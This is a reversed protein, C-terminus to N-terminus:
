ALVWGHCAQRQTRYLLHVMCKHLVQLSSYAASVCGWMGACQIIAHRDPQSLRNAPLSVAVLIKCFHPTCSDVIYRQQISSGVVLKLSCPSSDARGCFMYVHQMNISLTLSRLIFTRLVRQFIFCLEPSCLAFSVLQVVVRLAVWSGCQNSQLAENCRRRYVIHSLRTSPFLLNNAYPQKQLKFM